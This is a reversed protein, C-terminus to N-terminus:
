SQHTLTLYFSKIWVKSFYPVIKCTLDLAFQATHKLGPPTCIRVPISESSYMRPISSELYEFGGISWALLYTSMIPTQQFRFSTTSESDDQELSLVPMNSIALLGKPVQISLNFTAKLAPQDFCPFARRADSPQFQTCCTYGHQFKSSELLPDKFRFFGSLDDDLQGRFVITLRAPQSSLELPHDLRM